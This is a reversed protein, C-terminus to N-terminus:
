AGGFSLYVPPNVADTVATHNLMYGIGRIAIRQGAAIALPVSVPPVSLGNFGQAPKALVGTYVSVESGAPGVAIEYMFKKAEATGLTELSFAIDLVHTDYPASAKVEIWPAPLTDSWIDLGKSAIFIGSATSSGTTPYSFGGRNINNVVTTASGWGLIVSNASLDIKHSWLGDSTPTISSQNPATVGIFVHLGAYSTFAPLVLANSGTGMGTQNTGRIYWDPGPITVLIAKQSDTGGYPVSISGASIESATVTKYYWGTRINTTSSYAVYTWGDPITPAVGVNIYGGALVLLVLDGPQTSPHFSPTLNASSGTPRTSFSGSLVSPQSPGLTQDTFTGGATWRRKVLLAPTYSM